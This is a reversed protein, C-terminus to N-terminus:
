DGETISYINVYRVRISEFTVSEGAQLELEELTHGNRNDFRTVALPSLGNVSNSVFFNMDWLDDASIM